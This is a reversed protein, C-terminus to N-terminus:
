PSHQRDIAPSAGASGGGFSGGAGGSGASANANPNMTGSGGRSQAHSIAPFLLLVSLCLLKKMVEGEYSGSARQSRITRSRQEARRMVSDVFQPWNDARAKFEQFQVRHHYPLRCALPAAIAFSRRRRRLKYGACESHNIRNKSHAFSQCVVTYPLASFSAYYLPLRIGQSHLAPSTKTPKRSSQNKWFVGAPLRRQRQETYLARSGPPNEIFRRIAIKARSIIAENGKAPWCSTKAGPSLRTTSPIGGIGAASAASTSWYPFKRAAAIDLQCGDFRSINIPVRNASVSWTWRTFDGPPARVCSVNKRSAARPADNWGAFPSDKM